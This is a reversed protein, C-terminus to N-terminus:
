ELYKKIADVMEQSITHEIRCANDEAVARSIDLSKYLFETILTHNEYIKIALNRGKETLTVPGYADQMIYGEAKLSKMAKSVSPKSVKLKKAIDVTHAHHEELELLYITELYMEVSESIKM